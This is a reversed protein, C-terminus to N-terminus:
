NQIRNFKNMVTSLSTLLHAAKHGIEKNTCSLQGVLMNIAGAEVIKVKNCECKVIKLLADHVILKHDPLGNILPNSLQAVLRPIAGAEVINRMFRYNDLLDLIIHSTRTLIKIDTSMLHVVLLPIAGADVINSEYNSKVLRQIIMISCVVIGKMGSSLLAVLKPIAGAEMIKNIIEVHHAPLMYYCLFYMINNKTIMSSSSSSLLALFKPVAGAAVIESLVDNKSTIRSISEDMYFALFELLQLINRDLYQECLLLDVLRPIAGANVIMANMAIDAALLTLARISWLITDQDHMHSLLTVLKPIAESNKIDAKYVDIKAFQVIILVINKNVNACSSFQAVLRPIATAIQSMCTTNTAALSALISTVGQAVSQSTAPLLTMLHQIAGADALMFWDKLSELLSLACEMVVQHKSSLLTFLKPIAGSNKIDANYTSVNALSRLISSVNSCIIDDTSSLLAVLDPIATAIQSICAINKSALHYLLQSVNRTVSINKSPLLAVLHQVAGADAIVITTTTNDIKALVNLVFSTSAIVIQNKSSLLAVLEPIANVMINQFVKNTVMIGLVYSMKEIVISSPSSLLKLIVHGGGSEVFEIHSEEINIFAEQLDTLLKHLECESTEDSNLKAIISCVVSEQTGEIKVKKNVHGDDNM